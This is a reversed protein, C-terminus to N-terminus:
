GERLPEPAAIGLEDLRAVTSARLEELLVVRHEDPVLGLALNLSRRRTKALQSRTPARDLKRDPHLWESEYRLGAVSRMEDFDEDYHLIALGYQHALAATLLDAESYRRQYGNAFAACRRQAELAIEWTQEDIPLLDFGDELEVRLREYDVSTRASYLLELAFMQSIVVRGANVAEEWREFVAPDREVREWASLDLLLQKGVWSPASM